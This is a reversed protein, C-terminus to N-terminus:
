RVDTDVGAPSLSPMRPLSSTPEAVGRRAALCAEGVSMELVSATAELEGFLDALESVEVNLVSLQASKEGAERRAVELALKLKKEREEAGGLASLLESVTGELASVASEVDVGDGRVVCRGASGGPVSLVTNGEESMLDDFTSTLDFSESQGGRAISGRPPNSHQQVNNETCTTSNAASAERSSMILPPLIRSSRGLAFAETASM